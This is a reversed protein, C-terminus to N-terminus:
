RTLRMIRVSITSLLLPLDSGVRVALWSPYFTSDGWMVPEPLRLRDREQEFDRIHLPKKERVIIASWGGLPIRERPLRQGKEVGFLFDLENNEEDYLSLFLSDNDFATTLEQYVIEMLEDLQLSAGVAQTIRNVVALREDKGHTKQFLRANEIAVAVQDAITSLLVEQEDSYAYPRDAMVSITGIVREGIMMPAGVWSPYIKSEEGWM